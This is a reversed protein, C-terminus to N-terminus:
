QENEQILSEVFLKRSFQQLAAHMAANCSLTGQM